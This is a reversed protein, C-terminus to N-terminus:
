PNRGQGPSAGIYARTRYRLDPKGYRILVKGRDTRWGEIKKELNSFRLNAYAVRSFHELERENVATLYFPDKSRWFIAHVEQKETTEVLTKYQKTQDPTLIPNLSEIIELEEPTLLGRAIQYQKAAHQFDGINQYAFGLFLHCNKDEPIIKVASELLQIMQQHDDFEYFILALRYYADAFTPHIAIVQKYCDAAEEKIKKAFSQMSIIGDSGPEVSIMDQYHLMADEKIQAIQFYAQYNLPDLSIIKKFQREANFSFGKKLNLIAENFLFEVNKPELRRAYNLEITANFRGHVTGEAMYILALQNYAKALRRNLKLAIKLQQIALDTKGNQYHLLAQQYHKEAEIVSRKDSAFTATISAFLLFTFILVSILKSNSM